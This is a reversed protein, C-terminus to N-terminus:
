NSKESSRKNFRRLTLSAGSADNVEEGFESSSIEVKSFTSTKM